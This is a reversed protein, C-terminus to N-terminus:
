RLLGKAQTVILQTVADPALAVAAFREASSGTRLAEVRDNYDADGVVGLVLSKFALGVLLVVVLGRLPMQRRSKLARFVILGDNAVVSRYGHVMRARDRAIRSLRMDFDEYVKANEDYM